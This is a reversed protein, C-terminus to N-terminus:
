SVRTSERIVLSPKLLIQRPELPIGRFTDILMECVMKGIKYIPQNVTTLPPQSFEAMPVDDFGTILIDQGVQIGEEQIAHIAGFAMLDNFAVVADIKRNAKVLKQASIYGGRETLDSEIVMNDNLHIGHLLLREQLGRLRFKTFTFEEPSAIASIHTRGSGVLHDAVLQMGYECDEDVYIYDFDGEIRGFSVFPFNQEILYHIRPDHRRTRVIIFGDVRRSQVNLRYTSIEDEGPPTSSVLLDYGQESAANGIGSLFESFFPDSLRPGSVPLIFGITETRQKKLRQALTSPTYGMEEAAKRVLDKTQPSVDPYDDLARSVTTISKGVRRAIDKITVSM